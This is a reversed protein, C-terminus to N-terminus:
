ELETGSSAQESEKAWEAHEKAVRKHWAAEEDMKRLLESVAEADEPGLVPM